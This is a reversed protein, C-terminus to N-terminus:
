LGNMTLVLITVFVACLVSGYDLRKSLAGGTKTTSKPVMNDPPSYGLSYNSDFWGINIDGTKVNCFNGGSSTWGLLCTCTTDVAPDFCVGNPGCNLKACTINDLKASISSLGPDADLKTQIEGMRMLDRETLKTSGLGSAYNLYARKSINHNDRSFLLRNGTANPADTGNPPNVKIVYPERTIGNDKSCVAEFSQRQQGDVFALTGTGIGDDMCHKVITDNCTITFSEDDTTVTRTIPFADNCMKKLTDCFATEEPKLTTLSCCFDYDKAACPRAPDQTDNVDTDDRRSVRDWLKHFFSQPREPAGMYRRVMRALAVGGVMNDNPNYRVYSEKSTTILGAPPLATNCKPIKKLKKYIPDNDSPRYCDCGGTTSIVDSDSLVPLSSMLRALKFVNQNDPVVWSQGFTRATFDIDSQSSSKPKLIAGTSTYFDNSKDGDWTGCLGNVQGYFQSPVYVSAQLFYSKAVDWYDARIHTNFTGTNIRIARGDSSRTIDINGNDNYQQLLTPNSAFHFVIPKKNYQLASIYIVVDKWQVAISGMCAVKTNCPYHWAQIKFQPHNVLYYSRFPDFGFITKDPLIGPLYSGQFNYYLKDFTTYHPDGTSTCVGSPADGTYVIPTTVTASDPSGDTSWFVTQIGGSTMPNKMWDARKVYFIASGTFNAGVEITCFSTYWGAPTKLKIFGTVGNVQNWNSISVTLFQGGQLNAYVLPTPAIRLIPVIQSNALVASLLLLLFPGFIRSIKSSGM